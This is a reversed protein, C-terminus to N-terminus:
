PSPSLPPEATAPPASPSQSPPPSPSETPQAAAPSAEPTSQVPQPSPEPSPAAARPAANPDSTSTPASDDNSSEGRTDRGTDRDRTNILFEGLAQFRALVANLRDIREQITLDGDRSVDRLEDDLDKALDKVDGPVRGHPDDVPIVYQVAVAITICRTCEVNLAVAVNQPAVTHAGRQYLDVQLAVALTQCDTCSSEAWALNEPAVTDGHIRNMQIRGRGRYAADRYNKVVVYNRAGGEAEGFAAEMADSGSVLAPSASPASGASPSASTWGGPLGNSDPSASAATTPEATGTATGQAAGQSGPAVSVDVVLTPAEQGAPPATSNGTQGVCGAALVFALLLGPLGRLLALPPRNM